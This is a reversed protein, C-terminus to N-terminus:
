LPLMGIEIQCKYTIIHKLSTLINHSTHKLIAKSEAILKAEGGWTVRTTAKSASMGAVVMVIIVIVMVIVMVILTVIIVIVM